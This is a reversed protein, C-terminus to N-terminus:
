LDPFLQVATLASLNLVFSALRLLILSAMM